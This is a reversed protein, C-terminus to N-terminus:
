QSALTTDIAPESQDLDIMWNGALLLVGFLMLFWSKFMWNKYM